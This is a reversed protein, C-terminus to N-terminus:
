KVWPVGGEKKRKELYKKWSHKSERKPKLEETDFAVVIDSCIKKLDEQPGWFFFFIKLINQM